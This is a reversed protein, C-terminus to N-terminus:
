RPKRGRILAEPHQDLYDALERISRATRTLEGVLDRLGSEGALPGAVLQDIEGAASDLKAVAAHVQDLTPGIETRARGIISALDALARDINALSRDIQPSATVQRVRTTIEELNAGIRRFPIADIEAAVHALTTEVTRLDGGAIAPLEPLPQTRDLRAASGAGPALEIEAGGFLLNRSAIRARLGQRAMRDLLDLLAAPPTDDGLGFPGPYLALRAPIRVPGGSPDIRLEVEEVTGVRFGGLEVPSGPELGAAPGPLEV